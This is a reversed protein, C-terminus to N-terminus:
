RFRTLPFIWCALFSSYWTPNVRMEGRGAAVTGRRRTGMGRGAVSGFNKTKATNAVSYVSPTMKKQLRDKVPTGSFAKPNIDDIEDDQCLKKTDLDDESSSEFSINRRCKKKEVQQHGVKSDGKKRKEKTVKRTQDKCCEGVKRQKTDCYLCVFTTTQCKEKTESPRTTTKKLPLSVTAHLELDEDEDDLYFDTATRSTGPVALETATHSTGPVDL